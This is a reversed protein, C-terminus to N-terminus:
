IASCSSLPWLLFDQQWSHGVVTPVLIQLNLFECNKLANRAAQQGWVWACSTRNNFPCTSFRCSQAPQPWVWHLTCENKPVKPSFNSYAVITSCFGKPEVCFYNSIMGIHMIAILLMSKYCLIRKRYSCSPWALFSKSVALSQFHLQSVTNSENTTTQPCSSCMNYQQKHRISSYSVLFFYQRWRKSHISYVYTTRLLVFYQLTIVYYLVSYKPYLYCM